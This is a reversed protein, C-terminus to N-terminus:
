GNPKVLRDILFIRLTHYAGVVVAPRLPEERLPPLIQEERV